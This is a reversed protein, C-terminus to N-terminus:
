ESLKGLITFDDLCVLYKWIIGVGTKKGHSADHSANIPCYALCPALHKIHTIENHQVGMKGPPFM